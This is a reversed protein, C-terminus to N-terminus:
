LFANPPTSESFEIFEKVIEVVQTDTYPFDYYHSLFELIELSKIEGWERENRM